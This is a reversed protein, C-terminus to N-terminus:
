AEKWSIVTFFPAYTANFSNLFFGIQDPVIYFAHTNTYLTTYNVGDFSYSFSKNAGDDAIRFWYVSSTPWFLHSALNAAFLTPSTYQRVAMGSQTALSLLDFPMLNGSGSNRLVMGYQFQTGQGLFPGTIGMTVTYPTAPVAKVRLRLNNAGSGTASAMYISEKSATTSATGQNVWSFDGDVPPTLPWAPGWPVWISGSDRTVALGDSPLYLRGDTGAAPRGAFTGTLIISSAAGGTGPPVAFTADERLFKTTGAAAGPDPVAGRAHSAGSAVFDSIGFTRDASLDGGGTLPATTSISRTDPVPSFGLAPQKNNFTTWDGSTLFGPVIASAKQGNTYDISVVNAVVDFDNPNFTFSGGGGGSFNPSIQIRLIGNGASVVDIQDKTGILSLNNM